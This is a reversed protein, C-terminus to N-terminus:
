LHQNSEPLTSPEKQAPSSPLTGESKIVQYWVEKNRLIPKYQTGNVIYYTQGDIEVKEYGKPISGVVAGVPAPVVEFKRGNPVYFSGYYYFYTLGGVSLEVYGKPLNKVRYGVPAPVMEYRGDFNRYYIGNWLYYDLGGYWFNISAYPLYWYFAGWSPFFSYRWPVGRFEGFGRGIFGAHTFAVRGFGGGRRQADANSITSLALAFLVVFLLGIKKFNNLSASLRLKFIARKM